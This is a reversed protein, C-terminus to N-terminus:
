EDLNNKQALLKIERLEQRIDRLAIEVARLRSSIKYDKLDGGIFYSVPKKLLDALKLLKDIPPTIRDSEYGSITKDSVELAVGVQLQSLKSDERASKIRNGLTTM